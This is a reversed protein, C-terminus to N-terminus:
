IPIAQSKQSSILDFKADELVCDMTTDTEIIENKELNFTLFPGSVNNSVIEFALNPNNDLKGCTIHTFLSTQKLLIKLLAKLSIKTISPKIVPTEPVSVIVGQKTKATFENCYEEFLRICYERNSIPGIKTTKTPSHTLEVWFSEGDKYASVKKGTYADFVAVREEEKEIAM